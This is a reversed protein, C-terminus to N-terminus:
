TPVLVNDDKLRILTVANNNQVPFRVVIADQVEDRVHLEFNLLSSQLGVNDLSPLSCRNRRFSFFFPSISSSVYLLM